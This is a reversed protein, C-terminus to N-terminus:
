RPSNPVLGIDDWSQLQQSVAWPEVLFWLLLTEDPFFIGGLKMSEYFHLRAATFGITM